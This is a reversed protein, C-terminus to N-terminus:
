TSAADPSRELLLAVAAAPACRAARDGLESALEIVDLGAARAAARAIFAGVGTVVATRLGAHRDVVRHIADAIRAGQASAVAEALQSVGDEGLLESDACVVRALREGSFERTVPRGDPPPVSYDEPELDGRWVHVDGILAFAEASVGASGDGYPVTSVLAEVPTRVAGTYVLEGSALRDPDTWGIAATRGNVIPIIDTTTTGVDILVSDPYLTGVIRATAAWNAAAVALHRDRAEQPPIFRDPVAFVRVQAGPFANAVADLVFHVGERKTRFMQSLEATM